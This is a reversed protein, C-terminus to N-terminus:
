YIKNQCFINKIFYKYKYKYKYFILIMSFEIQKINFIFFISSFLIEKKFLFKCKGVIIINLIKKIM